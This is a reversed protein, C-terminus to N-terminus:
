RRVCQGGRVRALTDGRSQLLIRRISTKQTPLAERVGLRSGYDSPAACLLRLTEAGPPRNHRRSELAEIRSGVDRGPWENGAWDWEEALLTHMHMYALGCM